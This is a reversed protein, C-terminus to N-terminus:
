GGTPQAANLARQRPSFTRKWPHTPSNRRGSSARAPRPTRATQPTDLYRGGERDRTRAGGPREREARAPAVAGTRPLQARELARLAHRLAGRQPRPRAAGPGERPTLVFAPGPSPQSALLSGQYFVLLHGDLLERVDVRCGAYSRRRPGPPLQVWRPGLGVTNDRAVRRSYRCSM